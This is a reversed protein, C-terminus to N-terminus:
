EVSTGLLPELILPVDLRMQAEKLREESGLIAIVMGACAEELAQGAQNRLEQPDMTLIRERLTQRYADTIGILHRQLALWGRDAPDMPTDLAGITAIVAKEVEDEEIDERKLSITAERFAQITSIIHPDRYSFLPMYGREQTMPVPAAM